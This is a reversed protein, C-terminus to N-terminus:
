RACRTIAIRCNRNSSRCTSMAYSEAISTSTGWGSGYGNNDGIALAGCADRFWAIEGCYSGGRSRCEGVARDRAASRSDYSWAMGWAYSGGSEQSFVISGYRNQASTPFTVSAVAGAILILFLRNTLRKM